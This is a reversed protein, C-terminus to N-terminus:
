HVSLGEERPDTEKITRAESVDSRRYVLCVGQLEKPCVSRTESMEGRVLGTTRKIEITFSEVKQGEADM